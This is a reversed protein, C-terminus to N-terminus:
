NPWAVAPGPWLWIVPPTSCSWGTRSASRQVRHVADSLNGETSVNGEGTLHLVQIPAGGLRRGPGRGSWQDGWCRALWGHRGPDPIGSGPRLPCAGATSNERDLSSLAQRVPNGVWEGRKLGETDPFSTFIRTAWRSAVRNALGAAANQEAVLLVSGSSGAAVLGAPITIYGGMALVVKM